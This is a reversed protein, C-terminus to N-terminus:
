HSEKKESDKVVVSINLERIIAGDITREIRKERGSETVMEVIKQEAKEARVVVLTAPKGIESKMLAIRLDVGNRVPKGNFSKVLDGRRIGAEMAPSEAEVAFVLAKGNITDNLVQLSPVHDIGTKANLERLDAFGGSKAFEDLMAEAGIWGMKVEGKMALDLFNIPIAFAINNASFIGSNVIGVVEGRANIIPSGSNGPNVAANTQIYDEIKMLGVESRRHLASVIGDTISATLDLPNGLVFVRDGQRVLGSDGRKAVGFSGKPIDVVRMVATDNWENWMVLEGRYKLKKAPLTIEYTYAVVKPRMGGFIIELPSRAKQERVVHHNTAVLGDESVFFGTGGGLTRVTGDAYVASTELAVVTDRYELAIETASKERDEVSWAAGSFALVVAVLSVLMRKM